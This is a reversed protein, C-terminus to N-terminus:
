FAVLQTGYFWEHKAHGTADLYDVLYSDNANVSDSRSIVTGTENSSKIKVVQKLGFKFKKVPFVEKSAM